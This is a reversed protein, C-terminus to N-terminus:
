TKRRNVTTITKFIPIGCGFHQVYKMLQLM